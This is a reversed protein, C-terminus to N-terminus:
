MGQLLKQKEAEYQEETLVGSDLLGKLKTLADIRETESSPTSPAESAQSAPAPAAPAPAPTAEAEQKAAARKGVAYGAGGVMAARMLPRRRGILPMAVDFRMQRDLEDHSGPSITADETANFDGSVPSAAQRERV